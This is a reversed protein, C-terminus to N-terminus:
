AFSSNDRAPEDFIRKGAKKYYGMSAEVNDTDGGFLRVYGDHLSITKKAMHERTTQCGPKFDGSSGLHADLVNFTTPNQPLGKM